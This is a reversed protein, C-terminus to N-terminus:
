RAHTRWRLLGWCAAFLVGAIAVLTLMLGNSGPLGRLMIDQLLMIGYTAPLAYSVSLAPQRLTDLPLVFGSFFVIGLLSLMSFQVAQRESVALLSVTFGLGISALALLLLTLALRWASGFLPVDMGRLLVVLLVGAIALTFLVYAVYKGLLLRLNSIPAVIYLDFTGALREQVLALAGLSVAVHQLLLALIAPAFFTTFDPKLRAVYETKVALPAIVVEPPVSTFAAIADHLGQLSQRMQLLGLQKGPAGGTPTAMAPAIADMLRDLQQLHSRIQDVQARLPNAEPGLRELAGAVRDSLALATQVEQRAEQWNASNTAAIARDLNRLAVDIDGAAKTLAERQTGARQLFIERNLERAVAGMFDPVISRWLPDMQNYLVKITARKGAAITAMPSPPLIMVADVAHRRLQDRAYAEDGTYQTITLLHQLERQYDQLLRPKAEGKPLVVIARPPNPTADSGFGFIILILLPGLILTLVLMPRHLLERLEKLAITLIQTLARVSECQGPRAPKSAAPPLVGAM